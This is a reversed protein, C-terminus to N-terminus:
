CNSCGILLNCILLDLSQCLLSLTELSYYALLFYFYAFRIFIELCNLFFQSLLGADSLVPLPVNLNLALLVLFCNFKIHLLGLLFYGPGNGFLCLLKCLFM